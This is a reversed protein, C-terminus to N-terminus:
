LPLVERAHRTACQLHAEVNDRNYVAGVPPPNECMCPQSSRRDTAPEPM